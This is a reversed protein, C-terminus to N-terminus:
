SSFGVQEFWKKILTSVDMNNKVNVVGPTDVVTVSFPLVTNNLVYATLATTKKIETDLVFRFNNERKVDYLYNLMSNITTTKGARVPGFLLITKDEETPQQQGGIVVKRITANPATGKLVTM